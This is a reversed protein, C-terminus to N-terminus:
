GAAVPEGGAAPARGRQRARYTMPAEGYHRKFARSFYLPDAFGARFAVEGVSLDSFRLLRAAELMVRDTVLEKTGRGTVSALTRSLVAPPVRLVDAYHGAEHHRAFDRELVPLFRRYLQLDADDADRQQTRSADYWRELWLLLGSLFHRQLDISCADPPRRAEAALTDIVAELRPADARPVVVTRSGRGGLLWGPSARASPGEHLLEDGFRVVAGSLASAEEFVHVQGRGILTVTGPRVAAPEGDVLHRGSGTRTWILEHYDHRHPARPGRPVAAGFSAHELFVVELAPGRDPLRDVTLRSGGNHRSMNTVRLM